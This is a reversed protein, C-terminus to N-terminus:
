NIDLWQLKPNKNKINKINWIKDSTTQKDVVLM